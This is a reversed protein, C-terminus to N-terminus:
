YYIHLVQYSYIRQLYLFSTTKELLINEQLVSILSCERSLFSVAQFHKELFVIKAYKIITYM